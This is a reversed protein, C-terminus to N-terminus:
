WVYVKYETDSMRPERRSEALPAWRSGTQWGGMIEAQTIQDTTYVSTLGSEGHRQYTNHLAFGTFQSVNEHADLLLLGPQAAECFAM